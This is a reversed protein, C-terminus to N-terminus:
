FGEPGSFRGALQCCETKVVKRAKVGREHSTM